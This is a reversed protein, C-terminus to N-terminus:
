SEPPYPERKPTGHIYHDHQHALDTIGIDMQCEEILKTLADWNTERVERAAPAPSLFTIIVDGEEQGSVPEAPVAVGDKYHGKVSLM